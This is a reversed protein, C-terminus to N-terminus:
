PQVEFAGVDCKPEPGLIAVPRPLGRQDTMLLAGEADLCAEPPIRDIAVSGPLLAHTMTPGGNDALPGLKLDEVNVLDTPDTLGCTDGPSEINGGNSIVSGTWSGFVGHSCGFGYDNSGVILSNATVLNADGYLSVATIGDTGSLTSNVLTLQGDGHAIASATVSSNASVTSNILTTFGSSAIPMGEGGNGTVASGIMTFAGRTCIAGGDLALNGSVTSDILTLTGISDIAACIHSGQHGTVLTRNVTLVGTNYIGSFLPSFPPGSNSTVTSDTLTLTGDNRVGTGASDPFPPPPSSLDWYGRTVTMGILETTVGPSVLFVRHDLNGDVTLNGEGDLIVNNDIVIEAQTTVTTPGNCDFTYPGGGAAIADRIGQETCPFETCDADAPSECFANCVGDASCDIGPEGRAQAAQIIGPIGCRGGM